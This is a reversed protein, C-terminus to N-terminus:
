SNSNDFNFDTYLAVSIQSVNSQLTGIKGDLQEQDWSSVSKNTIYQANVRVGVLDTLQHSVSAVAGFGDFNKDESVDATSFKAETYSLAPGAYFSSVGSQYTLGASAALAYDPKITVESMTVDSLASWDGKLRVGIGLSGSIPTSVGVDVSPVTYLHGINTGQEGSILGRVSNSAVGVSMDATYNQQAHAFFVVSAIGLVLSKKM